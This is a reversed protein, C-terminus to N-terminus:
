QDARGKEGHGLHQGRECAGGGFEDRQARQQADRQKAARARQDLVLLERLGAALALGRFGHGGQAAGERHGLAQGGVRRM